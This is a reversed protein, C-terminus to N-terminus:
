KIYKTSLKVLSKETKEETVDVSIVVINDDIEIERKLKMNGSFNLYSTDTTAKNNKSNNIESSAMSLAERKLFLAPKEYISSIFMTTIGVMVGLVVMSTLAEILTTGDENKLLDM